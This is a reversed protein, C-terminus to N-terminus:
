GVGVANDAKPAEIPATIRNMWDLGHDPKQCLRKMCQGDLCVGGASPYEATDPNVQSLRVCSRPNAKKFVEDTACLKKLRNLSAIAQNKNGFEFCAANASAIGLFILLSALFCTIRSFRVKEHTIFSFIM